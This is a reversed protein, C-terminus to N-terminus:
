SNIVMLDKKNFGFRIPMEKKLKLEFFRNLTLYSIYNRKTNTTVLEIEMYIGNNKLNNIKGQYQYYTNLSQHRIYINEPRIGM